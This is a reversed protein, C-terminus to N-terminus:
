PNMMLIRLKIYSTVNTGTSNEGLLLADGERFKRRGRIDIHRRQEVFSDVGDYAPNRSGEGSWYMWDVLDTEVAPDMDAAALTSPAVLLGVFYAAATDVTLGHWAISGVVRLITGGVRTGTAGIVTAQEATGATITNASPAFTIWQTTRRSGPRSRRAM